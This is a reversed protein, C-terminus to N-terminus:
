PAPTAEAVRPKPVAVVTLLIALVCLGAALFIPMGPM